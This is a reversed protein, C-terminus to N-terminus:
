RCADAFASELQRAAVDCSDVLYKRGEGKAVDRWTRRSLALSETVRQIAGPDRTECRVGVEARGLYRDCADVTTTAHVSLPTTEICACMAPKGVPLTAPTAPTAPTAVEPPTDVPAPEASPAVNTVNTVYTVHNEIVPPPTVIVPPAVVPQAATVSVPAASFPECGILVCALLLRV